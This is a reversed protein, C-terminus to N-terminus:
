DDWPDSRARSWGNPKGDPGFAKPIDNVARQLANSVALWDHTRHPALYGLKVLNGKLEETLHMEVWRRGEFKPRPSPPVIKM